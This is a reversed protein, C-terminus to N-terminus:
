NEQGGAVGWVVRFGVSDFGSDPVIGDRNASRLFGPVSVWSGGRLVRSGGSAPGTPDDLDSPDYSDDYWDAVWEWM